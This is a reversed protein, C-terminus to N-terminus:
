YSRGRGKPKKALGTKAAEDRQVSILHDRFAPNVEWVIKQLDSWRGRSVLTLDESPRLFRYQDKQREDSVRANLIDYDFLFELLRLFDDDDNPKLRRNLLTVGAGPIGHLARRMIEFSAKFSGQDFDIAALSDVVREIDPCEDEVENRLFSVRKRSFAPIVNDIDNQEIKNSGRDKAAQALANLLQVADRPRNRSRTVILDSWSSFELSTPARAGPGEFFLPWPDDFDSIGVHAASAILRQEVIAQMLQSSPTLRIVLNEFHDAQDRQGAGSRGLRRWVEERITVVVRLRESLRALDRAALILGWIRNLHSPQTPDAVQDTDDILVYFNTATSSLKARVVNKIRELSPSDFQGEGSIDGVIPKALRPLLLALRSVFDRGLTGTRLGEDLLIRDNGTVLGKVESAMKEVIAGVLAAYAAYTHSAVSSDETAGSLQMTRPNIRAVPIGLMLATLGVADLIASKGSGKKGVLIIPSSPKPIVLKDFENQEVFVQDLIHTEGEATGTPTFYQLSELRDM